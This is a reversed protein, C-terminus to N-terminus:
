SKWVFYGNGDPVIVESSILMNITSYPKTLGRQEAIDVLKPLSFPEGIRSSLMKYNRIAEEITNEATLADEKDKVPSEPEDGSVPKIRDKHNRRKAFRHWREFVDLIRHLQSIVFSLLILGAFVISIGVAAIAWGNHASINELGIL